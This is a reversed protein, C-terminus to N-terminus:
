SSSWAKELSKKKGDNQYMNINIEATWLFNKYFHDSTKKQPSPAFDLRAKNAGQPSAETDARLFDERQQLSECHCM